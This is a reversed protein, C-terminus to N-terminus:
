DADPKDTVVRNGEIHPNPDAVWLVATHLIGHFDFTEDYCLDRPYMCNACHVKPDLLGAVAGAAAVNESCVWRDRDFCTKAFFFHRLGSRCRLPTAQLALRCVAFKKGEQALAFETLAKSQECTLPRCPRRVMVSGPYSKLRPLVDVICTETFARPRSNPGVELIAPSGDPRAIVIAAHIPPGSGVLKFGLALAKSGNDYLFIDGPLPFYPEAVLRCHGAADTHPVVWYGAQEQGCPKFTRQTKDPVVPTPFAFAAGTAAVTVFLATVATVTTLRKGM